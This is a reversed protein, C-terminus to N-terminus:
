GHTGLFGLEGLDSDECMGLCYFSQRVYEEGEACGPDGFLAAREVDVDDGIEGLVVLHLRADAGNAVPEAAELPFAEADPRASDADAGKLGSGPAFGPLVLELCEPNGGAEDDHRAPLVVLAGGALADHEELGAGGEAGAAVGGGSKAEAPKDLVHAGAVADGIDAAAATDKGYGGGQEAGGLDEGSVVVAARPTACAL